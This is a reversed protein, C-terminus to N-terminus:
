DERAQDPADKDGELSNWVERLTGRQMGEFLAEASEDTDDPPVFISILPRNATLGVLMQLDPWGLEAAREMFEVPPMFLGMRAIIQEMPVCIAPDQSGIEGDPCALSHFCGWLLGSEFVSEVHEMDEPYRERTWANVDHGYITLEPLVAVWFNHSKSRDIGM